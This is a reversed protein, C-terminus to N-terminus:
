HLHQVYDIFLQPENPKIMDSLFPKLVHLMAHGAGLPDNGTHIDRM